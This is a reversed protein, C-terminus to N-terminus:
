RRARTWASSWVFYAFLAAVRAMSTAGPLLVSSAACLLAALGACAALGYVWPPSRRRTVWTLRALAVALVAGTVVTSWPAPLWRALFALLLAPLSRSASPSERALTELFASASGGPTVHVLPTGLREEVDDAAAEDASTVRASRVSLRERALVAVRECRAIAADHGEPDRIRDAWVVLRM